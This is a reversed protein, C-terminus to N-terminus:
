SVVRVPENVRHPTAAMFGVSQTYFDKGPRRRLGLVLLLPGHTSRRSTTSRRGFPHEGGVSRAVVVIRGRGYWPGGSLPLSWQSWTLKREDPAEPEPSFKVSALYRLPTLSRKRERSVEETWLIEVTM